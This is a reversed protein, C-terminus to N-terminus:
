SRLPPDVGERGSAVPEVGRTAFHRHLGATVGTAFLFIAAPVVVGIWSWRTRAPASEPGEPSEAIGASGPTGSRQPSTGAPDRLAKETEQAEDVFAPQELASREKALRGVVLVGGMTSLLTVAVVTWATGSMLRDAKVIRKRYSIYALFLGMASALYAMAMGLIKGVAEDIM